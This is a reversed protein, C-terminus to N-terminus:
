IGRYKIVKGLLQCAHWLEDAGGALINPDLLQSADKHELVDSFKRLERYAHFLEQEAAKIEESSKKRVSDAHQEWLLRIRSVLKGLHDNLEDITLPPHDPSIEARGHGPVEIERMIIHLSYFILRRSDIQIMLRYL